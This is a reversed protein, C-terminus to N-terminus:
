MYIQNHIGYVGNGHWRNKLLQKQLNLASVAREPQLQPPKKYNTHLYRFHQLRQIFSYTAM